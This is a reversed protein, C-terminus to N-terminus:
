QSFITDFLAFNFIQGLSFEFWENDYDNDNLYNSLIHITALRMITKTVSRLRQNCLENYNYLKFVITEYFFCAFAINFYNIFTLKPSTKDNITTILLDIIVITIINNAIFRYYDNNINFLLIKKLYIDFIALVFSTIIMKTFFSKNNSYFHFYFILLASIFLLTDSSIGFINTITNNLTTM